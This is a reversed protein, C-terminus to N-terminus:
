KMSIFVLQALQTACVTSSTWQFKSYFNLSVSTTASIAAVEGILNVSLINKAANM